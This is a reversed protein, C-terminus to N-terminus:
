RCERFEQEYLAQGLRRHGEPGFHLGDKFPASVEPCLREADGCSLLPVSDVVRDVVGLAQQEAIWGNLQRTSLSRAETFYRAFGGWPAVTIAVLRAGAAKAAAYMASLDRQIKDNSRGATLNSYLDNVGGFVIVHSYEALRPRVEAEFRRRMQNVMDGGRGFNDFRSQPARQALYRLYGGGHARYDTLSDGVAAVVCIRSSPPGSDAVAADTASAPRTASADVFPATRQQDAPAPPRQEAPTAPKQDAPAPPRQDANDTRASAAAVTPEAAREPM